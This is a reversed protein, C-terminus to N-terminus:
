TRSFGPAVPLTSLGALETALARPLAPVRGLVSIAANRVVRSGRGRLTAMWTLELRVTSTRLMAPLCFGGPAIGRRSGTISAFGRAGPSRRSARPHRVPGRENLLQQVDGISPHEPADDM